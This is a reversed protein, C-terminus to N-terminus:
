AAVGQQEKHFAVLEAQCVRLLETPQRMWFTRAFSVMHRMMMLEEGTMGWKGTREYRAQISTVVPKYDKESKELAYQRAPSSQGAILMLNLMDQLHLFHEQNAAGIAFADVAFREKLELDTEDLGRLVLVPAKPKMGYDMRKKGKKRM